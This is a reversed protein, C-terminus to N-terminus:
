STTNASSFVADAHAIAQRFAALDLGAEVGKETLFSVMNETALNGVLEDEAMPCGGYGKMATDYRRCGSQWAAAVKEYWNTATCHLHAGFEVHPFAPILTSFLASVDAPQAVGVTDALAITKVGMTAIKEVYEAAVGPNWRDGYPNGFAMSIYIVLEKGHTTCLDQMTKVNELSAAITSNTNRM